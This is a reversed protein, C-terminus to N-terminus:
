SVKDGYLEALLKLLFLYVCSFNVRRSAGEEGYWTRGSRTEYCITSRFRGSIPLLFSAEYTTTVEVSFVVYFALLWTLTHTQYLM